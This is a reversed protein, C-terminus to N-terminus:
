PLAHVPWRIQQFCLWVLDGRHTGEQLRVEVPFDGRARCAAQSDSAIIRCRTGTPVAFLRGAARLEPIQADGRLLARLASRDAAAIRPEPGIVLCAAFERDLYVYLGALLAAVATAVISWRRRAVTFIDSGM